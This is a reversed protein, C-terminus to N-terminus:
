SGEYMREIVELVVACLLDRNIIEWGYTRDGRFGRFM